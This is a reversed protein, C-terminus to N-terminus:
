VFQIDQYRLYEKIEGLSTIGKDLYAKYVHFSSYKPSFGNPQLLARKLELIAARADATLLEKLRNMERMNDDITSSPFVWIDIKWKASLSM